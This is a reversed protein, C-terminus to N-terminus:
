LKTEVKDKAFPDAEVKAGKVGEADRAQKKGPATSKSKL